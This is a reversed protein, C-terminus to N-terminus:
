CRPFQRCFDVLHWQNCICLIMVTDSARDDHYFLYIASPWMNLRAPCVEKRGSMNSVLFLVHIFCMAEGHSWCSCCGTDGPFGSFRVLQCLDKRLQEVQVGDM